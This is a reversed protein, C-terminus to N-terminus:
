IAEFFQRCIEGEPLSTGWLCAMHPCKALYRWSFSRTTATPMAAPVAQEPSPLPCYPLVLTKGFGFPQQLLFNVIIVTLREIASSSEILVLLDPQRPSERCVLM